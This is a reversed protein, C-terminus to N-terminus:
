NASLFVSCFPNGNCHIEKLKGFSICQLPLGKQQALQKAFSIIKDNENMLYLLLYNKKQVPTAFFEWQKKTLLLTPDLVVSVDKGTLEKVIHVGAQERVSIHEFQILLNAFLMKDEQAIHDFGFSAAYSIKKTSDKIFDLLFATDKQTIEFNWVQDSGVIFMDFLNRLQPLEQHLLPRTDQLYKKMFKYFFFPPFAYGLFFKAIRSCLFHIKASWQTDPYFHARYDICFAQVGISNLINKLAYAQLVAGYNFAHSFTLIGVKKM